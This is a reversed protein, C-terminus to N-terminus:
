TASIGPRYRLTYNIMAEKKKSTTVEPMGTVYCVYTSTATGGLSPIILSVPAGTVPWTKNKDYVCSIKADFGDDLLVDVVGAGDGNEIEGLGTANKPTATISDVIAGGPSGLQGETGWVISPTGKITPTGVAMTLALIVLLALISTTIM